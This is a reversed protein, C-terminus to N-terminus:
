NKYEGFTSKSSQMNNWAGRLNSIYSILVYVIYYPCIHYFEFDNFCKSMCFNYIYSICFLNIFLSCHMDYPEVDVGVAVLLDYLSIKFSAYDSM